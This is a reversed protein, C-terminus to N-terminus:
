RVQVELRWDAWMVWMIHLVKMVPRPCHYIRQTQVFFLWGPPAAEALLRDPRRCFTRRLPPRPATTCPSRARRPQVTTRFPFAYILSIAYPHYAKSIQGFGVIVFTESSSTRHRLQPQSNAAYQSTQM